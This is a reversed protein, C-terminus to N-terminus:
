KVRFIVKVSSNVANADVYGIANSRTSVINMMEADSAVVRPPKGKGTFIRKSWYKSMSKRSKDLIKEEFEERSNGTYELNYPTVSKGDSFKTKRGLYIDYLEKETITNLPNTKNVIVLVEANTAKVMLIGSFAAIKIMMKFNNM